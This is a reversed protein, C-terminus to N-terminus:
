LLLQGYGKAEENLAYSFKGGGGKLLFEVTRKEVAKMKADKPYIAKFDGATITSNKEMLEDFKLLAVNDYKVKEVTRYAGTSAAKKTKTAAKKKTTPKTTTTTTAVINEEEKKGEAEEERAFEVVNSQVTSANGDVVNVEMDENKGFTSKVEVANAGVESMFTEEVKRNTGKEWFTEGSRKEVVLKFEFEAREIPLNGRWVNGETWSLKFGDEAKWKGLLPTSGVIVLTEGVKLEAHFACRLAVLAQSSSSSLSSDDVENGSIMEAQSGFTTANTRMMMTNKSERLSSRLSRRSRVASKQLTCKPANFQAHILSSASMKAETQDTDTHSFLARVSGLKIDKKREIPAM